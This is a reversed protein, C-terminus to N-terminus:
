PIVAGYIIQDFRIQFLPLDYFASRAFFLAWTHETGIFTLSESLKQNNEEYSAMARLAQRGGIWTPQISESLVKYGRLDSRQGVIERLADLLRDSIEASTMKDRVMWVAACSGELYSNTLIAITSPRTGELSWDSSLDFQVHTSQNQYRGNRLIEMPPGFHWYSAIGCFPELPALEDEVELTLMFPNKTFAIPVGAFEVQM